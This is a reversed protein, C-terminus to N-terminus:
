DTGNQEGQMLKVLEPTLPTEGEDIVITEVPEKGEEVDGDFKKLEVRYIVKLGIADGSM